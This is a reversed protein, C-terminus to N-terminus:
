RVAMSNTHAHLLEKVKRVLDTTIGQESRPLRFGHAVTTSARLGRRLVDYDDQDVLGLSYLAAVVDVPRDSELPVRERAAYARLTAEAASWALLLAAEDQQGQSLTLAATARALIM